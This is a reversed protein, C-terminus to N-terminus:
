TELRLFPVFLPLADVAVFSRPVRRDLTARDPPAMKEGRANRM